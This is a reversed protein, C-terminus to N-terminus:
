ERPEHTSVAKSNRLGNFQTMEMNTRSMDTNDSFCNLVENQNQQSKHNGVMVDCRQEM